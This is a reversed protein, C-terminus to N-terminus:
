FQFLLIYPLTIILQSGEYFTHCHDITVNLSTRISLWISMIENVTRSIILWWHNPKVWLDVINSIMFMLVKRKMKEHKWEKPWSQFLKSKQRSHSDCSRSNKAMLMHCTHRADVRNDNINNNNNNIFTDSSFIRHKRIAWM